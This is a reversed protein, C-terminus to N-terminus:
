RYLVDDQLLKYDSYLVGTYLVNSNPERFMDPSDVRVSHLLVKDPLLTLKIWLNDLQQMPNFTWYLSTDWTQNTMWIYNHELSATQPQLLWKQEGLDILPISGSENIDLNRISYSITGNKYTITYAPRESLAIKEMQSNNYIYYSTECVYLETSDPAEGMVGWVNDSIATYILHTETNYYKSGQPFIGTPATAQIALLSVALFGMHFLTGDYAKDIKFHLFGTSEYPIDLKDWFVYSEPNVFELSENTVFPVDQLYRFDNKNQWFMFGPHEVAKAWSIKIGSESCINEYEPEFTLEPEEYSVQFISVPTTISTNDRNEVTLQIGYVEGSILGDVNYVIAGSSIKGSTSILEGYRDYLDWQYYLYGVNQAQSYIGQFTYNKSPIPKEFAAISVTPTSRTKFPVFDSTVQATTVTYKMGARPATTYETELTVSLKDSSISDITSEEGGINMRQYAQPNILTNPQALKIVKKTSNVGTEGTTVFNDSYNSIFTARWLYSRGNVLSNAPVKVSVTTGNYWPKGSESIFGSTWKETYSEDYIDVKIYQIETDSTANITAYFTNEITADIDTLYPQMQTPKYLLKEHGGKKFFYKYIREIM